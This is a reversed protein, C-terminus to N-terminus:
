ELGCRNPGMGLTRKFRSMATPIRPPEQALPQGAKDPDSHGVEHCFDLDSKNPGGDQQDDETRQGVAPNQV